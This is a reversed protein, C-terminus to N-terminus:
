DYFNRTLIEDQWEPSLATFRASFGCVRVILNPYNEPHIQADLLQEKTTCNLQLSQVGCQCLARLFAEAVDLTMRSSPLIINMVSNGHMTTTDIAKMSNLVSTVSPIYRLRSPTLGQSFYDGSYRGDPTALTKQGWWKIETYTLHGISTKGGYVFDIKSCLEYIDDNFKRALANSADSEDGWCNCKLADTRIHEYGAWNARVAALMEKLTYKKREFCLQKIALLSDVINPLGIMYLKDDNYRGGGSKSDRKKAICDDLTSSFIPLPNIQDHIIRGKKMIYNRDVLLRNINELLIGYLDEFSKAEDFLDFQVGIKDMKDQRNHLTFEFVKLLNFYGGCDAKEKGLLVIDWCGSEIYDRAEEIPKGSRVIAPIMADDNSYMVSSTGAIVDRNIADLYAKPSSASIRCKIKPYIIKYESTARLFMDTLENYVPEGNIDCGGLTYTNELEHDSYGVMKMDHDYHCDWTLLFAVILEYAEEQTMAGSEIDKQYFPYLDMDVRGFTNVGVGELTGIVKRFFALINLAEYFSTPANWPTNKASKAIRTLRFIEEEDTVTKLKEEAAEAFRESIRKVSLLGSCLSHLFAYEKDTEATKLAEQAREYIGKLGTEFIPRYNFGYHQYEDIYTGCVNYMLEEKNAFFREAMAPDQDICLDHRRRHLWAGCHVHGRSNCAGDCRSWMSSMDYYFPSNKFIKPTFNEAIVRYQDEKLTHANNEAALPNPHMADLIPECKERLADALADVENWYYQQLEQILKKMDM